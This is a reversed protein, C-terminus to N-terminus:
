IKNKEMVWLLLEELLYKFHLIYNNINEKEKILKCEYYSEEKYKKNKWFVTLQLTERWIEFKDKDDSWSIIHHSKKFKSLKKKYTQIEDNYRKVYHFLVHDKNFEFYINKFRFENTLDIQCFSNQDVSNFKFNDLCECHLKKGILEDSLGINPLLIFFIFTLVIRM